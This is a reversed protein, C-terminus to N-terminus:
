FCTLGIKRALGEKVLYKIPLVLPLHRGAFGGLSLCGAHLTPTAIIIPVADVANQPTKFRIGLQTLVKIAQLAQSAPTWDHL